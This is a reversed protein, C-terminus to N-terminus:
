FGGYVFALVLGLIILIVAAGFFLLACILMVKTFYYMKADVNKGTIRYSVNNGDHMKVVRREFLPADVICDDIGDFNM